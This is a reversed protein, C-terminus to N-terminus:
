GRKLLRRFTSRLSMRSKKKLGLFLRVLSSKSAHEIQAKVDKLGQESLDTVLKGNISHILTAYAMMDPKLQEQVMYVSNRLNTMEALANDTQGLQLYKGVKEFHADLASLDSGIGADVLLYRNFLHYRNMPLDEISDFVELNLNGIKTKQM